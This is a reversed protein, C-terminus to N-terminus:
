SKSDGKANRNTRSFAAEKSEERMGSEIQIEKVMQQKKIVWDYQYDMEWGNKNMLDNFLKKIYAYNPKEEFKLNRLYKMFEVFEIPHGALLEEFPTDRKLSILKEEKEKKKMNKMGMWPLHGGNLFYCM